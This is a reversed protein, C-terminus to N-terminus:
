GSKVKVIELDADGKNKIIFEHVIDIGELSTGFDYSIGEIFASPVGVDAPEGEDAHVTTLVGMLSIAIVVQVLTIFIRKQMFEGKCTSLIFLLQKPGGPGKRVFDILTFFYTIVPRIDLCIDRRKIAINSYTDYILYM